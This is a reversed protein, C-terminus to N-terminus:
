KRLIRVNRREGDFYSDGSDVASTKNKGSVLARVAGLVSAIIGLVTFVVLGVVLAVLSVLVVPVVITLVAAILALKVVWSPQRQVRNYWPGFTQHQQVYMRWM